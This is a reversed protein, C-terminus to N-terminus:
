VIKGLKLSTIRHELRESVKSSGGILNQLVRRTKNELHKFINGAWNIKKSLMDSLTISMNKYYRGERIFALFNWIDMESAKGEFAGKEMETTNGANFLVM